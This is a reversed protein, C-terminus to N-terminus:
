LSSATSYKNRTLNSVSNIGLSAQPNEVQDLSDYKTHQVYRYKFSPYGTAGLQKMVIGEVRVVENAFGYLSM